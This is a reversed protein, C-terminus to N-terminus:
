YVTAKPVALMMVVLAALTVLLCKDEQTETVRQLSHM